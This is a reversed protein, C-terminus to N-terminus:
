IKCINQPATLMLSQLKSFKLEFEGMKTMFTSNCKSLADNESFNGTRIFVSDSLLKDREFSPDM